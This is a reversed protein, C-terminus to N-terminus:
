GPHRSSGALHGKMATEKSSDNEHCSPRLAANGSPLGLHVAGISHKCGTLKALALRHSLGSDTHSPFLINRQSVPLHSESLRSQLWGACFFLCGVLGGSDLNETEEGKVKIGSYNGGAARHTSSVPPSLCDVWAVGLGIHM